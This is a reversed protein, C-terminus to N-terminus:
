RKLTAIFLLVLIIVDFFTFSVSATPLGLNTYFLGLSLLIGKILFVLFVCSIILLKITKHKSYSYLSVALLGVSFITVFGSLIISQMEM